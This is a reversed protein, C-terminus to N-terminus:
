ADSDAPIVTPMDRIEEHIHGFEAEIYDTRELLEDADILRGHGDPVVVVKTEYPYDEYVIAGGDAKILVLTDRSTPMKMGNIYVGM